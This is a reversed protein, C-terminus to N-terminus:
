RGQNDRMALLGALFHVPDGQDKATEAMSSYDGLRQCLENLNPCSLPRGDTRALYKRSVEIADKGRGLKLLLNVLVEAPYTGMEEPDTTDLKNRFYAIGEDVNHGAVIDLYTKYDSYGKEFPLDDQGLFRSSLKSGYLCLERALDLEPCHTLHMSMQVISSLHSTDIHYTDDAFLWDRGEILRALTGTTEPNIESTESREAMASAINTCLDRYLTCILAKICYQRQDDNLSEAGSLTTIASCTGYNKLILDFGKKPDLGEYLALQILSQIDEGEDPQYAALAARVPEPEEIMRFYTWAAAIQGEKLLTGGVERAAARIGEEYSAHSSIPLSSAPATPIPLVGLEHRKKLLLAYFLLHHDNSGRLSQCLLEIASSPGQADLTAQIQEFVNSNM